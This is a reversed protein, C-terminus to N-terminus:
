TCIDYAYKVFEMVLLNNKALFDIYSKLSFFRFGGQINQVMFFAPISVLEMGLSTLIKISFSQFRISKIMEVMRLDSLDSVM